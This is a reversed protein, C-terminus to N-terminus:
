TTPEDGQSNDGAGTRKTAPAANTSDAHEALRMWARAIELLELKQWLESMGEAALYCVRAKDRYQDGSGM